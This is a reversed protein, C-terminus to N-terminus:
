GRRGLRWRRGVYQDEKDRLGGAKVVTEVRGRVKITTKGLCESEFIKPGKESTGPSWVGM